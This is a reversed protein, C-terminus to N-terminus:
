KRALGKRKQRRKREILFYRIILGLLVINVGIIFLASRWGQETMGALRIRDMRDDFIITGKPFPLALTERNIAVDMIVNSVEWQKSSMDRFRLSTRTPYFGNGQKRIEQVEFVSRSRESFQLSPTYDILEGKRTLTSLYEIRVPINGRRIDIWARHIDCFNMDEDSFRFRGEPFIVRSEIVYYEVGDITQTGLFHLDSESFSFFADMPSVNEKEDFTFPLFPPYRFIEGSRFIPNDGSIIKGENKENTRADVLWRYALKEKSDYSIVPIARYLTNLDSSTINDPFRGSLIKEVDGGNIEKSSGGRLLFDQGESWYDYVGVFVRLHSDFTEEDTLKYCIRSGQFLSANAKYGAVIDSVSARQALSGYGEGFCAGHLMFSCVLAKVAIHTVDFAMM